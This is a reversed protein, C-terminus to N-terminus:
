CYKQFDSIMSERYEPSYLGGISIRAADNIDKVTRIVYEDDGFIDARVEVAFFEGSATQIFFEDKEFDEPYACLLFKANNGVKDACARIYGTRDASLYKEKGDDRSALAIYGDGVCKLRLSKIINLKPNTPSCFLNGGRQHNYVDLSKRTDDLSPVILSIYYSDCASMDIVKYNNNM